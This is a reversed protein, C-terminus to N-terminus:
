PHEIRELLQRIQAAQSHDPELQLFREFSLRAERIAGKKHYLGGLQYYADPDQVNREISQRLYDIAQENDGKEIYIQAINYYIDSNESDRQLAKQYAALARDLNKINFYANGLNYFAKHYEPDIEVARSWSAIARKMDGKGYFANGMNYHTNARNPERALAQEWTAFAEETQGMKAYIAGLNHYVEVHEPKLGIAARWFQAARPLEDRRSFALGMNTLVDYMFEPSLTDDLSFPVSWVAQYLALARDEDGEELAKKALLIDRLAAFFSQMPIKKKGVKVPMVGIRIHPGTRELGGFSGIPLFYWDVVDYVEAGAMGPDFEVAWQGLELLKESESSADAQTLPHRYDVLLGHSPAGEFQAAAVDVGARPNLSVYLSPLEKQKALHTYSDILDFATYYQLYYNQRIYIGGPHTAKLRGPGNNLHILYTGPPANEEIWQRALVRTDEGALLARTRYTGYLPEVALVFVLVWRVWVPGGVMSLARLWVLVVLGGLPLAYRMFVSSSVGLLLLWSVLASVVLWEARRHSRGQVLLGAALALLGLLGVGYRLNYRLHHWLAIDRGGHGDGVMHESGMAAISTWASSWDLLVYPSCLVFVGGMVLGGGYLPWRMLGFRWGCALAVPVFALGGPYKTALALGAFLGGCLADRVRGEDILRVACYLACLSWLALPVDVIALHAFRVSLPLLCFLGGAAWGAWAGYLRRGILACVIGTLASLVSNLGRVIEILDGGDVFYRYAVFSVLSEADSFLYHLYYLASALYFHLTPYNFFHPNLDGSWFGLPHLIFAREDIHQWEPSPLPWRLYLGLAFLALLGAYYQIKNTDNM